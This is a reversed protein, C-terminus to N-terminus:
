GNAQAGLWERLYQIPDEAIVMQQLHWKWAPGLYWCGFKPAEEVHIDPPNDVEIKKIGWLAKAFEHNYIVLEVSVEEWDEFAGYNYLSYTMGRTSEIINIPLFDEGLPFEWGCNIAREIVRTLFEQDSLEGVFFAGKKSSREAKRSSL